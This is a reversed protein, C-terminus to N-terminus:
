RSFLGSVYRSIFFVSLGLSPFLGCPCQLTSEDSVDDDLGELQTQNHKFQMKV